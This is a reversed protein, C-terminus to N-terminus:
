QIRNVQEIKTSDIIKEIEKEEKNLLKAKEVEEYLFKMRDNFMKSDLSFLNIDLTKEYVDKAKNFEKIALYADGLLFYQRTDWNNLTLCNETIETITEEFKKLHYHASARKYRFYWTDIINIAETTEELLQTYYKNNEFIEFIFKRPAFYQPYIEIAKNFFREASYSEGQHYKIKGLNFWLPANNTAIKQVFNLAEEAKSYQEENIFNIGENLQSMIASNFGADTLQISLLWYEIFDILMEDTSKQLALQLYEKFENFNKNLVNFASIIEFYPQKQAPVLESLKDMIDKKFVQDHQEINKNILNIHIKFQTEWDGNLEKKIDPFFNLIQIDIPKLKEIYSFSNKYLILKCILDIFLNFQYNQYSNEKFFQMKEQEFVDFNKSNQVNLTNIFELIRNKIKSVDVNELSFYPNFVDLNIITSKVISDCTLLNKINKSNQFKKNIENFKDFENLIFSEITNPIDEKLISNYFHFSSIEPNKNVNKIIKLYDSFAEQYNNKDYKEQAQQYLSFQPNFSEFFEENIKIENSFSENMKFHFNKYQDFKNKLFAIVVREIKGKENSLSKIQISQNIIKDNQEIFIQSFKENVDEERFFAKPSDPTPVIVFFININNFYNAPNININGNEDSFSISFAYIIKGKTTYSLTTSQGNLIITNYLLFFIIGFLIKFIKMQM